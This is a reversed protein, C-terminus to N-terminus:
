KLPLPHCAEWGAESLPTALHESFPDLVIGLANLPGSFCPATRPPWWPLVGRTRPRCGVSLGHGLAASPQHKLAGRCPSNNNAM